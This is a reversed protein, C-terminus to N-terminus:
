KAELTTLNKAEKLDDDEATESIKTRCLCIMCNTKITYRRCCDGNDFNCQRNNVSDDCIGDGKLQPLECYENRTNVM